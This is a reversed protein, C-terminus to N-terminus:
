RATWLPLWQLRSDNCTRSPHQGCAAEQHPKPKECFRPRAYHDWMEQMTAPKRSAPLPFEWALQLSRVVEAWLVELFM